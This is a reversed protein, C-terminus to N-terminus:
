YLRLTADKKTKPEACIWESLNRAVPTANSRAAGHNVGKSDQMAAVKKECDVVFLMGVQSVGKPGGALMPAARVSGNARVAAPDHCWNKM